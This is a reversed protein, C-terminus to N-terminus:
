QTKKENSIFYFHTLADFVRKTDGFLKKKDFLSCLVHLKRKTTESFSWYLPECNSSYISAGLSFVGLLKKLSNGYRVNNAGLFEEDFM